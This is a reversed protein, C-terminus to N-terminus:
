QESFSAGRAIELACEAEPTFTIYLSDYGRCYIDGTNFILYCVSRRKSSGIHISSQTAPQFHKENIAFRSFAYCSGRAGDELSVAEYIGSTETPQSLCAKRNRSVCVDYVPRSHYTIKIM